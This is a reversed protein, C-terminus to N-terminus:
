TVPRSSYATNRRGNNPRFLITRGTLDVAHPEGRIYQVPRDAIDRRYMRESAVNGARDVDWNVRNEVQPGKFHLFPLRSGGPDATVEWCTASRLRPEVAM